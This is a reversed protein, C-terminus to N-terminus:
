EVMDAIVDNRETSRHQRPPGNIKLSGKRGNLARDFNLDLSSRSGRRPTMCSLAAHAAFPLPFSFRMNKEARMEDGPLDCDILIASSAPGYLKVTM